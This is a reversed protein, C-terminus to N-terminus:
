QESGHADTRVGPVQPHSSAVHCHECQELLHCRYCTQAGVRHVASPHRSMFGSAHPMEVGHCSTCWADDHCSLCSIRDDRATAGHTRPWDSPHPMALDHCSACYAPTHCSVCGSLDGAGHTQQWAPGHVSKWASAGPSRSGSGRHCVECTEVRTASTRHCGTCEDMQPALYHHGPLIHATGSHCDICSAEAFDQHRVRLGHNEITNALVRSHCERCAADSAVLVAPRASIVAGLVWGIARPSNSLSAVLGDGVHCTGCPVSAHPGDTHPSAYSQMSHCGTCGFYGGAVLTGAGWILLAIGTAALLSLAVVERHVRRGPRPESQAPRDASSGREDNKM